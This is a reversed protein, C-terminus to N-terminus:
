RCVRNRGQRKARYLAKDAAGIPNDSHSDSVGISITVAVQKNGSNSKGRQTKGQRTSRPREPSRLQLRAQEIDVRVQELAELAGQSDRGSFLISFEEGGYRYAKGARVRALKSAVLKLVQDGVEHGYRDNFRKFHDVDLMAVAYRRGQRLLADNLARRGPLGTLEDHYALGHGHGLLALTWLGLGLVLLIQRELGPLSALQLWAGIVLTALLSAEVRQQRQVTLVLLWISCLCLSAVVPLPPMYAPLWTPHFAALAVLDPLHQAGAWVLAAQILIVALRLLGWRNLTGRERYLSILALNCAFLPLTAAAPLTPPAAYLLALLLTGLLARSSNFYGALLLLLLTLLPPLLTLTTDWPSLLRGFWPGSIAFTSLLLVPLMLHRLPPLYPHM